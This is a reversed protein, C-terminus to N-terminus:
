LIEKNDKPIRKASIFDERNIKKTEEYAQNVVFGNPLIIGRYRDEKEIIDKLEKIGHMTERALRVSLKM